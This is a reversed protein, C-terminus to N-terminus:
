DFYADLSNLISDFEEKNEAKIAGNSDFIGEKEIEEKGCKDCVSKDRIDTKSHQFIRYNSEKDEYNEKLYRFENSENEGSDILVGVKRIGLDSALKCAIRFNNYGRVGYGFINFTPLEHYEEFYYKRILGVDEVGEVFLINDNFFIDKALEDILYPQKWNDAGLLAKYDSYVGLQKIESWQDDPKNVRAIKCGNRFYEVNIFHPSHTAVIIQRSKSKEALIHCLRKQANPQLSLEPEDIILPQDTRDSLLHMAIRFVSSVGEGMIDVAHKVGQKTSYSIYKGLGRRESLAWNEFDPFVSRIISNFEEKKAKNKEFHLLKNAVGISKGTRMEQSSSSLEANPDEGSATISWSRRSPIVQMEIKGGQLQSSGSEITTITIISNDQFLITFVPELNNNKDDELITKSEDKVFAEVLTSKGANNAGTIITLGSGILDPNPIALEISQASNYSRFNQLTFKKYYPM